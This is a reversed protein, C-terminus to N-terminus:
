FKVAIGGLFRRRLEDDGSGGSGGSGYLAAEPGRSLEMNLQVAWEAALDLLINLDQSLMLRLRDFEMVAAGKGPAGIPELNQELHHFAIFVGTATSQFRTDLSTVMYRVRNEYPQRGASVFTGGGGSALSSELRTVVQPSLRRSLTFQLEPLEDGRVLYLSELRDVLQDSFYLRLTEGVTRHLASLSMQNDDDAKHTIRVQYCSESGQECLDGEEFLAPLFDPYPPAEEYVRERGSALLQWQRGLQLVVGGQPTLTLSGDSLTSYLGYEVLVAPRVELGGRGFLDVSSLAPDDQRRAGAAGGATGLGFQRERYRLGTQLTSRDGLAMTYAGEVNWTRSAQPIEAPDLGGHRHYNNETTYQAAFESRGNEGVEQSWSLRYHEFDVPAETGGPAVLRNNLSTLSIRSSDGAAFDLSLASAQGGGGGGPNGGEATFAEPSFQWFRGTLGVQVQGLRGAIGLRGDSVQGEGAGATQAVGTMAAMETHFRALPGEAQPEFRALRLDEAEMDRLVDSPIRARIAWFDDEAPNTPAPKGPAREALRLELSQYAQATSRVLLIVGPVFGPKHAIIKYLGAPLDAFLFNGQADTTVKQLTLDALQYAYVSAAQLPAPEGTNGVVKGAVGAVGSPREATHAIDAAHAAHAASAAHAVDAAGAGLLAFVVFLLNKRRMTRM